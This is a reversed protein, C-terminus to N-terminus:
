YGHIRVEWLGAWTSQSNTLFNIRLYRALLPLIIDVEWEINLASEKFPVVSTWTITDFSVDISYGWIRGNDWYNFSSHIETVTRIDDLKIYFELPIIDAAWTGYPDGDGQLVGDIAKEPPHGVQSVKSAWVSDIALIFPNINIASTDEIQPRPTTSLHNEEFFANVTYNAEARIVNGATDFVNIVTITYIHGWPLPETVIEVYTPGIEDPVGLGIISYEQLNEDIISYVDFNYLNFTDMPESFTLRISNFDDRYNQASLSVIFVLALFLYRM